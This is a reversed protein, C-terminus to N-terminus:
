PVRWSYSGCIRCIVLFETAFESSNGRLSGCFMRAPDASRGYETRPVDTSQGRFIRVRDACWHIVQQRGVFRNARLTVLRLRLFSLRKGLRQDYDCFPLTGVIGLVSIARIRSVQDASGERRNRPSKMLHGCVRRSTDASEEHPTRPTKTFHRRVSGPNGSRQAKGRIRPFNLNSTDQVTYTTWM